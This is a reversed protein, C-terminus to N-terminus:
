LPKSPDAPQVKDSAAALTHRASSLGSSPEPRRVKHSRSAAGGWCAATGPLARWEPLPEVQAEGGLLRATGLCPVHVGAVAMVPAAQQGACVQPWQEM